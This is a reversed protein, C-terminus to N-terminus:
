IRIPIPRMTIKTTPPIASGLTGFLPIQNM